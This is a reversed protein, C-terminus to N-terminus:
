KLTQNQLQVAFFWDGYSISALCVGDVEANGPVKDGQTPIRNLAHVHQMLVGARYEIEM